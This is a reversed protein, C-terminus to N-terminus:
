LHLKIDKELISDLNFCSFMTYQESAIKKLVIHKVDKMEIKFEYETGNVIEGKFM